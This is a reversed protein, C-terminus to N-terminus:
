RWNQTGPPGQNRSPCRDARGRQWSPQGKVGGFLCVVHLHFEVADRPKRVAMKYECVAPTICFVKIFFDIIFVGNIDCEDAFSNWALNVRHCAAGLMRFM